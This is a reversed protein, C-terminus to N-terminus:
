KITPHINLTVAYNHKDESSSLVKIEGDVIRSVLKRYDDQTFNTMSWSETPLQLFNLDPNDGSVMGLTEAKGGFDNFQNEKIKNLMYRVSRGINKVASTLCM